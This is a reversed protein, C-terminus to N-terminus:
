YARDTNQTSTFCWSLLLDYRLSPPGTSSIKDPCNSFHGIRRPRYPYSCLISCESLILVKVPVRRELRVWLRERLNCPSRTEIKEGLVTTCMKKPEKRWAAPVCRKSIKKSSNPSVTQIDEELWDLKRPEGNWHKRWTSAQFSSLPLDYILRDTFSDAVCHPSRLRHPDCINYMPKKSRVSVM